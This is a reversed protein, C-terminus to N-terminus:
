LFGEIEMQKTLISNKGYKKRNEPNEKGNEKEKKGKQGSGPRFRTRSLRASGARNLTTRLRWCCRQQETNKKEKEIPTPEWGWGWNSKALSVVGKGDGGEVMGAETEVRPWPPAMASSMVVGYM